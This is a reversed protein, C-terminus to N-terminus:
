FTTGLSKKMKSTLWPPHWCCNLTKQGSDAPRTAEQDIFGARRDPRNGTKARTILSLEARVGQRKQPLRLASCARAAAIQPGVLRPCNRTCAVLIAQSQPLM